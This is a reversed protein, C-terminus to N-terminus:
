FGIYKNYFMDLFRVHLISILLIAEKEQESGRDLSYAHIFLLYTTLGVNDVFGRLGISDPIIVKNVHFYVPKCLETKLNYIVKNFYKLRHTDTLM